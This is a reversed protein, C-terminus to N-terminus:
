TKEGCPVCATFVGSVGDGGAWLPGVVMRPDPYDRLAAAHHVVAVVGPMDHTEPERLSLQFHVHPPWGGNEHEAGLWGLLQGRKVAAGAVWGEPPRKSALHGYLAWVRRGNLEHETVIVNGYDGKGPNYGSSHVRGDAICHVPTGVTSGIDVGIHIERAGDTSSFMAEEYMAPRRENYRGIDHTHGTECLPTWAALGRTFDRVLYNDPQLSPVVPSFQLGSFLGSGEILM